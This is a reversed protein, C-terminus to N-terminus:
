ANGRQETTSLLLNLGRSEAAVVGLPLNMVQFDRSCLAAGGRLRDLTLRPCSIVSRPPRIVHNGISKQVGRYLAVYKQDTGRFSAILLELLKSPSRVNGALVAHFFIM